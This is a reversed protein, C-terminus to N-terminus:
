SGSSLIGKIEPDKTPNTPLQTSGVIVLMMMILAVPIFYFYISYRTGTGYTLIKEANAMKNLHAENEDYGAVNGTEAKAKALNSRGL